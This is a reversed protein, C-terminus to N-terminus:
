ANLKVRRQVKLEERLADEAYRALTPAPHDYIGPKEPFEEELRSVMLSMERLRDEIRLIKLEQAREPTPQYNM